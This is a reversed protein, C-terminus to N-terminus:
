LIKTIDRIYKQFHDEELKKNYIYNKIQHNNSINSSSIDM